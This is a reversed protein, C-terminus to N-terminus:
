WTLPVWSVVKAKQQHLVRSNKLVAIFVSKHGWRVWNLAVTAANRDIGCPVNAPSVPIDHPQLRM